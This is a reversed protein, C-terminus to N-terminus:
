DCSVAVHGNPEPFGSICFSQDGSPCVCACAKLKTTYCRGDAVWNCDDPADSEKLGLECGPLDTTPIGTGASGDAHNTAHNSTHTSADSLDGSGDIGGESRGGCATSIAAWAAILGIHGRRM